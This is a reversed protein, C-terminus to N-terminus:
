RVGSPRLAALASSVLPRFATAVQENFKHRTAPGQFPPPWLVIRDGCRLLLDVRGAKSVSCLEISASDTHDAGITVGNPSISVPREHLLKSTIRGFLWMSAPIAIWSFRSLVGGRSLLWAVLLGPAATAAGYIAGTLWPNRARSDRVLM